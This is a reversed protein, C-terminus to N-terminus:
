VLQRRRRRALAVGQRSQKGQSINTSRYRHGGAWASGGAASAGPKLVPRRATECRRTAHKSSCHLVAEHKKHHSTVALRVRSRQMPFDCCPAAWLSRLPAGTGCDAGSYSSCGQAM